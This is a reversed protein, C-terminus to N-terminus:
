ISITIESSSTLKKPDRHREHAVVEVLKDGQNRYHARVLWHLSRYSPDQRGWTAMLANQADYSAKAKKGLHIYRDGKNIYEHTEASVRPPSADSGDAKSGELLLGYHWAIAFNELLQSVRNHTSIQDDTFDEDHTGDYPANDILWGTTKDEGLVTWGTTSDYNLRAAWFETGGIRFGILKPGDYKIAFGLPMSMSALYEALSTTMRACNDNAIQQNVLVARFIDSRLDKPLKDIVPDRTGPTALTKLFRLCLEDFRDHDEYFKTYFAIARERITKTKTAM